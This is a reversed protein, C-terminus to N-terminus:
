WRTESRTTIRNRNESLHEYLMTLVNISFVILAITKVALKACFCVDPSRQGVCHSPHWEEYKKSIQNATLSANLQTSIQGTLSLQHFASSGQKISGISEARVKLSFGARREGSVARRLGTFGKQIIYNHMEDESYGGGPPPASQIVRAHQKEM